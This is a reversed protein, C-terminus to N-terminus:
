FLLLLFDSDEQTGNPLWVFSSKAMIFINQEYFCGTTGRILFLNKMDGYMYKVAATFFINM